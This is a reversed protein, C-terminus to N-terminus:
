IMSSLAYSFLFIMLNIFQTNLHLKFLFAEKRHSNIFDTTDQHFSERQATDQLLAALRHGPPCKVKM